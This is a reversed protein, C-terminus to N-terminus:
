LPALRVLLAVVHGTGATVGVLRDPRRVLRAQVVEELEGRVRVGLAPELLPRAHVLLGDGLPGLPEDGGRAAGRALQLGPQAESEESAQCSPQRLVRRTASCISVVPMNSALFRMGFNSM